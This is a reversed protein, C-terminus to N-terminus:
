SMTPIAFCPEQVCFSEMAHGTYPMPVFDSVPGEIVNYQGTNLAYTVKLYQGFTAVFSAITWFVAFGFYFFGFYRRARGRSGGLFLKDALQPQFVLVSGIAVFILGFAPFGWTTYGQHTVDFVTQYTV